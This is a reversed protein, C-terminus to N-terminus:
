CSFEVTENDAVVKAETHWAIAVDSQATAVEAWAEELQREVEGQHGLNKSLLQSRDSPMVM